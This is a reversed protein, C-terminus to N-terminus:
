RAPGPADHLWRPFVKYARIAASDAEVLDAARRSDRCAAAAAIVEARLVRIADDVGLQVRADDQPMARLNIAAARLVEPLMRLRQTARRVRECEGVRPATIVELVEQDTLARYALADRRLPGQPASEEQQRAVRVLLSDFRARDNPAIRAPDVLACRARFRSLWALDRELSSETVPVLRAAAGKVGQRSGRDPRHALLHEAYARELARVSPMSSSDALGSRAALVVFCAVLAASTRLRM